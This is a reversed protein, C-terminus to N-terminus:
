KNGRNKQCYGALIYLGFVLLSGISGGLSFIIININEDFFIGYGELWLSLFIWFLIIQVNMIGIIIGQLFAYNNNIKKNKLERNKNKKILLYIGMGLFIFIAIIRIVNGLLPNQNFFGLSILAILTYIFEMLTAGLSILIGTNRGEEITKQAITLTILGIPLTGLISIIFAILFYLVLSM